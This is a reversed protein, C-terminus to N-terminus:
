LNVLCTTRRYDRQQIAAIETPPLYQIDLRKVLEKKLDAILDDTSSAYDKLRCLFDTHSRGKRYAPQQLPQKLYRMNEDKYDWLFSTHHLWRDKQIYQANGGCKREQIVFDHQKLDWGELHWANKYLDACWRMIPEPFPPIPIDTKSFIFSIFLTNEDVIVTGGGSTRQIIPIPDQQVRRQDILADIEGSLGMVIARPSGRNIICFNRQDARLLSEELQLQEFIPANWQILYLPTM